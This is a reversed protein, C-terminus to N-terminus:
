VAKWAGFGFWQVGEALRGTTEQDVLLPASAAEKVADAGYIGISPVVFQLYDSDNFGGARCLARPDQDRFGKYFPENNYYCDWDLYFGEFAGMQSNPPLEM